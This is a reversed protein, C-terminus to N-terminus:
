RAPCIHTHKLRCHSASAPHYNSRGSLLRSVRGVRTAAGWITRHSPGRYFQFPLFAGSSRKLRRKNGTLGYPGNAMSACVVVWQSMSGKNTCTVDFSAKTNYSTAVTPDIGGFNIVTVGASCSVAAASVTQPVILGAAMMSLLLLAPALMANHKM